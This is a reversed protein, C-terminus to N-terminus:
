VSDIKENEILSTARDSTHLVMLCLRAALSQGM